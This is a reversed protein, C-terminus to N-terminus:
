RSMRTSFRTTAIARAAVDAENWKLALRDLLEDLEAKAIQAKAAYVDGPKESHEAIKSTYQRSQDIYQKYLVSLVVAERLQRHDHLDVSRRGAIADDIGFRRDLDYSALQIQPGLTRVVFEVNSLGAQPAPPQGVGAPQGKRRLTIAGTAVAQIAFFEGNAGFSASPKTLRALQRPVLGFAAFDVSISTLTWPDTTSFVGDSGAALVQDRPCLASFDTSARLAIDEDTAYVIM